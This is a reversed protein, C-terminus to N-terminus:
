FNSSPYLIRILASILIGVDYTDQWALRIMDTAILTDVGKEQTGRMDKGCHSCKEIVTYCEPCKPHSQVPKREILTVQTGPFTNLVNQAWGILGRDQSSEPNYSVYINMNQFIISDAEVFLLPSVEQILVRPLIAWDIKQTKDIKNISLQFNWFDIFIYLRFTVHSM